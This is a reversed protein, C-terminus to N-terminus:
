AFDEDGLWKLTGDPNFDFYRYSVPEFGHIALAAMTFAAEGPIAGKTEIDLNVTRSHAKLFLKALHERLTALEKELRKNDANMIPRVDGAIELSITTFELGDPFTALASVLDGGGFPYVVTTPTNAPRIKAIFPMAVALWERKYEAYGATLMQCHQD